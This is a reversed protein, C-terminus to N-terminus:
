VEERLVDARLRAATNIKSLVPLSDLEEATLHQSLLGFLDDIVGSQLKIIVNQTDVVETLGEISSM